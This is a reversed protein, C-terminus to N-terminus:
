NIRYGRWPFCVLFLEKPKQSRKPETAIALIGEGQGEARKPPALSGAARQVRTHACTQRYASQSSRMYKCPRSYTGGRKRRLQFLPLSLLHESFKVAIVVRTKLSLM